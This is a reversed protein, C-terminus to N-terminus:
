SLTKQIKKPLKEFVLQYSTSILDTLDAKNMKTTDTVTVWHYRALYPAPIIHPQDTLELFREPITKFCVNDTNTSGLNIIAFMKGSVSYVLDNDWKIDHTVHPLAECAKKIAALKM